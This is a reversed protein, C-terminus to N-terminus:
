TKQLLNAKRFQMPTMGTYQKFFKTFNSPDYTLRTAISGISASTTLLLEKAIRVLGEEYWDCTSKGTVEKVSNSLYVPHVFLMRAMDRIELAHDTKGDKLMRLHENLKAIYDRALVDKRPSVTAPM